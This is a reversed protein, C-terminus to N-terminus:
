IGLGLSKKARRAKERQLRKTTFKKSMKRLGQPSNYDHTSEENGISGNRRSGRALHKLAMDHPIYVSGRREGGGGRSHRLRADSHLNDAGQL